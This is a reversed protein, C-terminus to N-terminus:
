FPPPAAQELAKRAEEQAKRLEAVKRAEEEAAANHKAIDLNASVRDVGAADGANQYALKAQDLNKTKEYVFGLQKYLRTKDARNAAKGLGKQLADIAQPYNGTATHAQGTYFLPLWEAPSKAAAQNFSGVADAYLSAGLQAEGLLLFSDYSPQTAALNRAVEAAKTYAADKAAGGAERGQRILAQVYLQSKKADRPDLRAARELAAVAAPLNGANLAAAGAQYQLNADNPAAAAAKAIEQAARDGQGSRDLAMAYLKQYGTQQEKSLGAANIRGLLQAAEAARNAELYGQALALQISGDGPNLDYAKRLADIAPQNRGQKLLARGLMMHGNAWDPRQAVVGEFEKAAQAYNGAKFAAVGEEWGAGAPLAALSLLVTTILLRNRM